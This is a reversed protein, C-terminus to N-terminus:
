VELLKQICLNLSASEKKFNLPISGISPFVPNESFLNYEKKHYFEIKANVDPYLVFLGLSNFSGGNKNGIGHLYKISLDALDYKFINNQKKYKADIIIFRNNELEIIFDPKLGKSHKKVTVLSDPIMEFNLYHVVGNKTFKVKVPFDEVDREIIESDYELKSFTDFLKFFCAREFLKDMRNLGKFYRKEMSFLADKYLLWEILHEYVFNYHEKSEIKNTNLFELTESTVPIYKEFYYKIEDLDKSISQIRNLNRINSYLEILDVFKINEKKRSKSELELKHKILFLKLESIFGHMLQNENVDTSEEYESALIETPTFLRNNILIKNTDFSVTAQLVDLNNALWFLSDESINVDSSYSLVEESSKIIKINDIDFLILYKSLLEKTFSECLNLLWEIKNQNELKEATHKLLSYKSWIASGKDEVYSVLSAFENEDIKSSIINFSISLATKESKNDYLNIDCIGIPYNIFLKTFGIKKNLIEFTDFSLYYKEFTNEFGQIEFYKKLDDINLQYWFKNDKKVILSLGIPIDTILVTFDFLEVDSEICISFNDIEDILDFPILEVYKQNHVKKLCHFTYNGM